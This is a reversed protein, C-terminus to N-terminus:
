LLETSLQTMFVPQRQACCGTVEEIASFIRRSSPAVYQKALCAASEDCLSGHEYADWLSQLPCGVLSNARPYTFISRLPDSEPARGEGGKSIRVCSTTREQVDAMGFSSEV